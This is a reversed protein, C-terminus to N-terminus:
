KRVIEIMLISEVPISFERGEHKIVLWNDNQRVIEGVLTVDAGNQAGTTPPSPSDAAMGLADRCFYVICTDGPRGALMSDPRSIDCGAVLATLTLLAVRRSICCTEVPM